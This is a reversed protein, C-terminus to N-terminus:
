GELRPLSLSAGRRLHLPNDVDNAEAILRWKTADGYAAYSISPLTDGDRVRHVGFGASARTTPNQGKPAEDAQKLTLKVDARLPDGTTTFLKYTVTLSTCAGKFVLGGWNFTIFPPAATPSGAAKGKPVEMADLLAATSDKVSMPAPDGPFTQDFLLSLEMQRPQGGGFTPPAFSKGTVEKYNWTNAKSVSYETPNFYCKLTPGGDIKLEAKAFGAPAGTSAPAASGAAALASM